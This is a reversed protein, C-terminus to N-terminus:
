REYDIENSHSKSKENEKAFENIKDSVVKIQEKDLKKFLNEYNQLRKSTKHLTERQSKAQEREFRRSNAKLAIDEFVPKIKQNIRNAIQEVTEKRKSFTGTKEVQPQLEEPSIRPINQVEKNANIEQYYEKITTHRAKSKEVGRELGLDAMKEAYKTQEESLLKRGNLFDNACLRGDKTIPVVFASLHPTTEDRHITASVINEKGYKEGLYEMSRNFFEKQKQEDADKFFDPSATMLYEVAVVGNKRVKDPLRQNMRDIVENTSSSILHENDPTREEDANLTERERFNHQLSARLNGGAKHKTHRMIAYKPM